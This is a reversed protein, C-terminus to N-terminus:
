NQQKRTESNLWVQTEHLDRSLFAIEQKKIGIFVGEFPHTAVGLEEKSISWYEQIEPGPQYFQINIETDSLVQNLDEQNSHNVLFCSFKVEPMIKQMRNLNLVRNGSPCSFCLDEQFIVCQIENESNSLPDCDRLISHEITLGTEIPLQYIKEPKAKEFIKQVIDGPFQHLKGSFILRGKQNYVYFSNQNFGNKEELKLTNTCCKTTFKKKDQLYSHHVLPTDFKNFLIQIQKIFIRMQTSRSDGIVLIQFESSEPQHFTVFSEPNPKSSVSQWFLIICIITLFGLFFKM